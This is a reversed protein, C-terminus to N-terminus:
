LGSAKVMRDKTRWNLLKKAVNVALDVGLPQYENLGGGHLHPIIAAFLVVVEPPLWM